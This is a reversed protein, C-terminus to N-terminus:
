TWNVVRDGCSIIPSAWSLYHIHSLSDLIFLSHNFYDIFSDETSIEISLLPLGSSFIKRGAAAQQFLWGPGEEVPMGHFATAKAWVESWTVDPVVFCDTCSEENGSESVMETPLYYYLGYVALM